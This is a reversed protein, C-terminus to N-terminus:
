TRPRAARMRTVLATSYTGDSFSPEGLLEVFFPLNHKPGAIAFSALATRARALAAERSDAHVILKAM